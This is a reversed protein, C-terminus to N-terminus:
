FREHCFSGFARTDNSISNRAESSLESRQFLRFKAKLETTQDPLLESLRCDLQQAQLVREMLMVCTYYWLGIGM